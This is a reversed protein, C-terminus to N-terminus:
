KNYEEDLLDAEDDGDPTLFLAKEKERRNVLGQSRRNDAYIWAAFQAAVETLPKGQNLMRMLTSNRLASTGENYGFSTLAAVSHDTVPVHIMGRVVQMYSAVLHELYTYADDRTMEPTNATVARGDELVTFGFGITYKGGSDKYATASFGECEAIFPVALSLAPDSM